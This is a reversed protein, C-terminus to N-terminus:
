PLCQKEIIIILIIKLVATLENKCSVAVPWSVGVERGIGCTQKSKSLRGSTGRFTFVPGSSAWYKWTRGGM